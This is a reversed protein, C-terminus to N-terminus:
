RQICTYKRGSYTVTPILAAISVIQNETQYLLFFLLYGLSKIVIDSSTNARVFIESFTTESEIRYLNLPLSLEALAAVLLPGWWYEVM